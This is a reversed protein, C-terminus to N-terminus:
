RRMSATAWAPHASRHFPTTGVRSPRSVALVGVASGNGLAAKGMVSAGHLFPLASDQDESSDGEGQRSLWRECRESIRLILREVDATRIGKARHFRLRGTRADVDYVGDIVLAHFAEM